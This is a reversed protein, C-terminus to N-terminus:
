APRWARDRGRLFRVAGAVAEVRLPLLAVPEGDVMPRPPRRRRRGCADIAELPEILVGTSLEHHVRRHDLHRGRALRGLHGVLAGRGVPDLRIVDLLGDDARATPAIPLGGGFFSTNAIALLLAPGEWTGSDTTIRYGYPALDRLEYPIARLYRAQGHPWRLTNARVNVAADVGASLVAMGWTEHAPVAALGAPRSMRIADLTVIDCPRCAPQLANIICRVAAATDEPADISDAGRGGSSGVLALVESANARVVDPRRRLLDRALVTRVPAVGAAAPDLVWPHDLEVCARVTAPIGEMGDTSLTGLNILAADALATMTPAEQATETMMPSAGAALLGDAVLSMSVTASLCHVLPRRARVAAAAGVAAEHGARASLTQEAPHDASHNTTM